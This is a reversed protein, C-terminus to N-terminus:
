KKPTDSRAFILSMYDGDELIEQRDYIVQQEQRTCRKVCAYDFGHRELKSIMDERNIGNKLICVTDVRKLVEEDIDGDTLYFSEGKLVVPLGLVAAAANYSTIGPVTEATINLAALEKALYCYTSYTAPDGLTLFVGAEDEGLTEDVIRAARGYRLRNDEKMPFSLEVVKKDKIYEHAITRALSAGRSEPIFVCDCTRILRYAKLTILEKDGPGIGIGYVTKM